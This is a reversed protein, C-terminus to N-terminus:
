ISVLFKVPFKYLFNCLNNQNQRNRKQQHNRPSNQLQLGPAKQNELEENRLREEEEEREKQAAFENEVEKSWDMSAFNQLNQCMEEFSFASNLSNMSNM